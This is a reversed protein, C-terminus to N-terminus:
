RLWGALRKRVDPTACAALAEGFFVRHFDGQPYFSSVIEPALRPPIVENTHVVRCEYSIVAQEILPVKVQQSPTATMGTEAFKDTDRGSMSGCIQIAEAFEPPMVNVTFESVQELRSYSYRSPRVLVELIPKGWIVGGVMWGVTMPNPKGDAGMTCLLLGGRTLAAMTEQWLDFPKIPQKNM